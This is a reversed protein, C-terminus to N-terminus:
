LRALLRQELLSQRFQRIPYDPEFSEGPRAEATQNDGILHQIRHRHVTKSDFLPPHPLLIHLKSFIPQAKGPAFGRRCQQVRHLLQLLHGATERGVELGLKVQSRRGPQPRERFLQRCAQNQQYIVPVAPGFVKVRLAIPAGQHAMIAVAGM